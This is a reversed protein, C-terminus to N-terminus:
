VILSQIVSSLELSSPAAPRDSALEESELRNSACALVPACPATPLPLALAAPAPAAVLPALAAATVFAPASAADAPDSKPPMLVVVAARAPPATATTLTAAMTALPPSCAGAGTFLAGTAMASVRAAVSSVAM